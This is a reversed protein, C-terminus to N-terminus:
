RPIIRSGGSATQNVCASGQYRITSGGSAKLRLKETGFIYAKSGGSCDVEFLKTLFPYGNLVSGGSLSAYSETSSGTLNLTSGGSADVKVNETIITVKGESGGSLSISINSTSLTNQTYARSGGSLTLSKLESISVSIKVNHNNKFGVNNDKYIRLKGDQVKCNVHEVYRTDATVAVHQDESQTLELTFGDEVYIKDFYGVQYTETIEKGSPHIYDFHNCAFLSLPLLLSFLINKM